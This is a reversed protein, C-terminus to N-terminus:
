FMIKVIRSFNGKVRCLVSNRSTSSFGLGSLQNDSEETRMKSGVVEIVKRHANLDERLFENFFGRAQGDNLCDELVFFYHKNGVKLDDWHNPSLMVVNVKQFTQTAVNWIKRTPQTSSLGGELLEIGNKRSYQLRAVTVTEKSKVGKTYSFRYLAGMFDIEVEFGVDVMERLAFNHVKLEYIGEKMTARSGYFINEVPTRTYGLGANMDVDLDGGNPSKRGRNGFYIEYGDPEIMHFDLDDYNFWALRCCLDGTVNGGAKKVREKIMSDAVDGNYSWSFKNDWKFMNPATANAPAVLSFFNGVHGNEVMLEITEANPLIDSLFKEIPVEDVKELTKKSPKDSVTAALNDFVNVTLSKRVARNAFLINNITIDNITAYRRELASTLGLEEIAKKAKEIMAKTVLATPRKYNTPAVKAEFAGVAAELDKDESLDTLLTGIVTNRVRTVSAPQSKVQLWVFADRDEPKIKSYEKKLAKFANVVFKHEEGRYLTNQAILELVTGISDDTIETLSRALVDHASRSESLKSAIDANKVVYRADINVFFHDWGKVGNVTDQFNRDTGATREFHLFEDAIPKSKVLATLADAVAQYNPEKIKVDWISELKGDIVAVANGVARIFQKCCNCDHETREKYIPNSGEPFSALYTTWMDDKEAATRFLEHKQMKAFQAAVATKLIKFDM